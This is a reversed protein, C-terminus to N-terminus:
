FRCGIDYLEADSLELWDKPFDRVARAIGANSFVLHTGLRRDNNPYPREQVLWVQGDEGILRRRRNANATMSNWRADGSAEDWM